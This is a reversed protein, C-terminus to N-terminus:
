PTDDDLDLEALKEKLAILEVRLLTIEQMLKQVDQAQLADLKENFKQQYADLRENGHAIAADIKALYETGRELAHRVKSLFGMVEEVQIRRRSRIELLKNIVGDVPVQFSFGM